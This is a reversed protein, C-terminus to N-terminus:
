GERVDHLRWGNGALWRLRQQLIAGPLATHAVLEISLDSQQGTVGASPDVEGLAPDVADPDEQKAHWREFLAPTRLAAQLQEAFAEAGHATFSLDADTGRAAAPDPLTIFFRKSM